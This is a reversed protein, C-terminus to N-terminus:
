FKFIINRLIFDDMVTQIFIVINIGLLLYVVDTKKYTEKTSVLYFGCKTKFVVISAFFNM